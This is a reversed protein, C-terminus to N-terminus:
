AVAHRCRRAVPVMVASLALCWLGMVLCQKPFTVGWDIFLGTIAPGIASSLVMLASALARIAGLHRTGYAYPLLTGWMTGGMGQTVGLVALAVVWGIPTEASGILYIGFGMPLLLIPLFRPPGFRDIAAGALLSTTVTAAAFAPYGPVMAALTWGKVEALHVQHFFVVTGIFGPTLLLPVLAWFLRDRLVDSRTWQRGNIGPSGSSESVAGKPTRDWKLLWVLLPLVGLLIVIAV